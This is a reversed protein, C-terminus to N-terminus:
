KGKKAKRKAAGKPKPEDPEVPEEKKPKGMGRLQLFCAHKFMSNFYAPHLFVLHGLSDQVQGPPFGGPCVQATSGCLNTYM